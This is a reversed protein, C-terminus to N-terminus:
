VDVHTGSLEDAKTCLKYPVESFYMNEHYHDWHGSEEWLQQNMLLPTRVEQYGAKLQAERSFQELEQRIIQGNPLYFPMGPAEESFM